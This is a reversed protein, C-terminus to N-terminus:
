ELIENEVTIVDCKNTNKSPFYAPLNKQIAFRREIAARVTKQDPIERSQTRAFTAVHPFILKFRLCIKTINDGIPEIMVMDVFKGPMANGEKDCKNLEPTVLSVLNQIFNVAIDNEGTQQYQDIATEVISVDIAADLFKEKFAVSDQMQSALANIFAKYCAGLIAMNQITREDHKAMDGNLREVEELTRNNEAHIEQILNAPDIHALCFPVFVSIKEMFESSKINRFTKSRTSQDFNITIMRSLVDESKAGSPFFTGAIVVGANVPFTIVDMDQSKKAITYGQRDFITCLFTNNRENSQFENLVVPSCSYQGLVRSSGKQSSLFNTQPILSAGFMGQLITAHATKGSQHKGFFYLLPNHVSDKFIGKAFLTAVAWGFFRWIMKFGLTIYLENVATQLIDVQDDISLKAIRVPKKNEEKPPIFGGEQLTVIEGNPKVFERHTLFGAPKGQDDEIMGLIASKKAIPIQKSFICTQLVENHPKRSDVGYIVNGCKAMLFAAFDIPKVMSSALVILTKKEVKDDSGKIAIEIEYSVDENIEIIKRLPSITFNSIQEITENDEKDYTVSFMCGDKEIITPKPKTKQPTATTPTGDAAAQKEAEKKKYAILKVVDKYFEAFTIHYRTELDFEKWFAEVDKKDIRSKFGITAIAAALHKYGVDAGFLPLVEFPNEKAENILDKIKGPNSALYDDLGKFQPPWTLFFVKKVKKTLRLFLYCGMAQMEVCHNEAQNNDFNSATTSGYDGVDFAICFTRGSFYMDANEFCKRWVNVSPCGLVLTLKDGAEYLDQTGKAAKKEGETIIVTGKQKKLKAAESPLFYFRCSEPHDDSDSKKPSYYKVEEDKGDKNKTVIPKILKVRCFGSGDHYPIAYAGGAAELLSVSKGNVTVHKMGIIEQMDGDSNLTRVDMKAITDDSLGSKRLDKLTDDDIQMGAIATPAYDGADQYASPIDRKGKGKLNNRNAPPTTEEIPPQDDNSNDSENSDQINEAKKESNEQSPNSNTTHDLGSNGQSNDCTQSLSLSSTQPAAGEFEKKKANNLENPVSKKTRQLSDQNSRNLSNQDSNSNKEQGDDASLM